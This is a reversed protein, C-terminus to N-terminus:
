TRTTASGHRAAALAAMAEPSNRILLRHRYTTVVHAVGTLDRIPSAAVAADPDEEFRERDGPFGFHRLASRLDGITQIDPLEVATHPGDPDTSM